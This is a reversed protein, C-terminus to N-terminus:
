ADPPVAVSHDPPMVIDMPIVAPHEEDVPHTGTHPEHHAHVVGPMATVATDHAPPSVVISVDAPSAEKRTFATIPRGGNDEEETDDDNVDDEWMGADDYFSGSDRPSSIESGESHMGDDEDGDCALEEYAREAFKDWGELLIREKTVRDQVYMDDWERFSLDHRRVHLDYKRLDFIMDFVLGANRCRKLDALTIVHPIKPNVMDLISCAFDNWEWADTMRFERMRAFQEVWFQKLEWLSWQGDGDVDLCRFWYEIGHPDDKEEVALVFWVFEKYSMSEFRQGGRGAGSFVRDIVLPSLCSNEYLALESPAVQLDHDTDLEWFKCYMVYFHKYSFVDRSQNIDDVNQLNRLLPLIGDKRFEQLSMQPDTNRSKAYFIRAVVTTVYRTQFVDMDRLFVLGPHNQVVDGVVINFDGEELKRRGGGLVAFTVEDLDACRPLVTTSWFNRFADWSVKAPERNAVEEESDDTGAVSHQGGDEVAEARGGCRVFLVRNVYRPLECLHTVQIFQAEDLSGSEANFLKEVEPLVATMRERFAVHDASEVRAPFPFRTSLSTNSSSFRRSAKPSPPASILVHHIVNVEKVEVDMLMDANAGVNDEEDGPGEESIATLPSNRRQQHHKIPYPEDVMMESPPEPDSDIGDVDMRDNDSSDDPHHLPVTNKVSDKDRSGIILKLETVNGDKDEEHSNELRKKKELALHPFGVAAAAISALGLGHRQGALHNHRQHHALQHHTVQMHPHHQLQAGAVFDNFGQPSERKFGSVKRRAGRGHRTVGRKNGSGIVESETMSTASKPQEDVDMSPGQNDDDEHRLASTTSDPPPEAATPVATLGGPFNGASM